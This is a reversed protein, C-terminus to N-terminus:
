GFYKGGSENDSSENTWGTILKNLVNKLSSKLNNWENFLDNIFIAENEESSEIDLLSSRREFILLKKHLSVLSNKEEDSFFDSEYSSVISEGSPHIISEVTKSFFELKEHMKRRINRLLFDPKEISSIEFEQNLKNFSPLSFKVVLINYEKEINESM